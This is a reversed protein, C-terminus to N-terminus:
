MIGKYKWFESQWFKSKKKDMNMRRYLFLLIFMVNFYILNQKMYLSIQVLYDTVNYVDGYLEMSYNQYETMLEKNNYIFTTDFLLRLLVINMIIFVLISLIQFQKNQNIKNKNKTDKMSQIAYILIFLFYLVHFVSTLQTVRWSYYNLIVLVGLLILKLIVLFKNM